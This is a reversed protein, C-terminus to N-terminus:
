FMKEVSNIRNILNLRSVKSISQELQLKLMKLNCCKLSLIAIKIFQLVEVQVCHHGVRGSFMLSTAWTGKKLKLEKVLKRSRRRRRALKKQPAPSAYFYLSLFMPSCPSRSFNSSSCIKLNCLFM